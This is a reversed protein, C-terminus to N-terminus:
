KKVIAGLTNKGGSKGGSSSTDTGLRRVILNMTSDDCNHTIEKVLCANFTGKNFEVSVRDGKRIWPIDMANIEYDKKPEGNEKLITNAESKVTSLKTDEDKSIIKTLTGYAKKNKSSVSTVIKTKGKDDTKGTIIVKTVMGDMTVTRAYDLMIGSDGRTIRYVPTNKGQADIHMADQKSRVVYKSGSKIKIKDLIDSTLVDALTGQLPLKPHTMSSYNYKVTIGWKKCLTTVIAKSSKGKSFYECIESNMLYILNDYCTFTIQSGDVGNKLQSDWIVGRFVETGKDKGVGKAYIFIRSRVPFINSPYGHGEIYQNYMTITAKQALQGEPETLSLSTVLNSEVSKDTSMKKVIYKTGKTSYIAVSYMPRIYKM